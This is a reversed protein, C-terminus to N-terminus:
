LARGPPRRRRGAAPRGPQLGALRGPRRGPGQPRGQASGALVDVLSALPTEAASPGDFEAGEKVWRTLIAIEDDALPPLKYPM